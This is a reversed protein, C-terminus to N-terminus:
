YLYFERFFCFAFYEECCLGDRRSSLRVSQSVGRDQGQLFRCAGHVGLRWGGVLRGGVTWDSCASLSAFADGIGITGVEYLDEMTPSETFPDRQCVVAFFADRETAEELLMRSSERGVSVPALVGPFVMMNRLPLVPVIGPVKQRLIEAIDGDFDAILSFSSVNNDRDQM